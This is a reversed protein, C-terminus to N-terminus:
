SNAYITKSGGFAKEAFNDSILIIVLFSKIANTRDFYNRAQPLLM